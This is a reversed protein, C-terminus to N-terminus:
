SQSALLRGESTLQATCARHCRRPPSESKLAHSIPLARTLLIYGLQRQSCHVREMSYNHMPPSDDAAADCQITWAVIFEYTGLTGSRAQRKALM